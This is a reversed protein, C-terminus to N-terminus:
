RVHCFVLFLFLILCRFVFSFCFGSQTDQPAERRDGQCTETHIAGTGSGYLDVTWVWQGLDCGLIAHHPRQRLLPGEQVPLAHAAETRFPLLPRTVDDPLRLFLLSREMPRSTGGKTRQRSWEGSAGTPARRPGPQQEPARWLPLTRQFQRPWDAAQGQLRGTGAEAQCVPYQTLARNKSISSGERTVGPM